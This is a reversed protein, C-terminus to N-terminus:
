SSCFPGTPLSPVNFGDPSLQGSILEHVEDVLKWIDEREEPTLNFLDPEHKRPIILSHGENLPYQDLFAISHKSETLLKTEESGETILCFLCNTENM